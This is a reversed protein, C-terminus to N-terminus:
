MNILKIIINMCKRGSLSPELPLAGSQEARPGSNLGWGPVAGGWPLRGASLGTCVCDGVTWSLDM